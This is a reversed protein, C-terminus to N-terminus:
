TLAAIADALVTVAHGIDHLTAATTRLEAPDASARQGDAALVAGDELKMTLLAFLRSLLDRRDDDDMGFRGRGGPRVPAAFDIRLKPDADSHAGVDLYREVEATTRAHSNPM